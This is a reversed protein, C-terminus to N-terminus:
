VANVSCQFCTHRPIWSITSNCVSNLNTIITLKKWSYQLLTILQDISGIYWSIKTQMLSFRKYLLPSFLRLYMMAGFWTIQDNKFFSKTIKFHTQCMILQWIWKFCVLVESILMFQCRQWNITLHAWQLQMLTYYWLSTYLHCWYRWCQHTVHQMVDTTEILTKQYIIWNLVHFEIASKSMGASNPDTIIM